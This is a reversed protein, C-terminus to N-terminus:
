YVPKQLLGSYGKMELKNWMIRTLHPEVQTRHKELLPISCVIPCDCINELDIKNQEWLQDWYKDLLYFAHSNACLAFWCHKHLNDQIEDWYKEILYPSNASYCFHSWNNIYSKNELNLVNKFQEWHKDFIDFLKYTWLCPYVCIEYMIYNTNDTLLVNYFEDWHNEILDFANANCNILTRWDIKDHIENWHKELLPIVASNKCLFTWDIKNENILQTWYKEILPIACEYECFKTWEIKDQIEDWYKDLFIFPTQNLESLSL